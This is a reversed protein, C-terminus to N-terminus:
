WNNAIVKVNPLFVYNWDAEKQANMQIKFLDVTLSMFSSFGESRQM